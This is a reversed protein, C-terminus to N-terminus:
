AQNKDLAQQEQVLLALTTRKLERDLMAQIGQLTHHAACYGARTCASPNVLCENLARPTDAINLIEQLTITEPSRALQIGGGVGRQAKIL